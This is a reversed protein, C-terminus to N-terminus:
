REAQTQIWEDSDSKRGRSYFSTYISKQYPFLDMVYKDRGAHFWKKITQHGEQGRDFPEKFTFKKLTECFLYLDM